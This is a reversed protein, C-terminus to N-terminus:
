GNSQAIEFSKPHTFFSLQTNMLANCNTQGRDNSLIRRQKLEYLFGGGVLLSAKNYIIHISTIM